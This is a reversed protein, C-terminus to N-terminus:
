GRVQIERAHYMVILVLLVATSASIMGKLVHSYTSEQPVHLCCSLRIPLNLFIYLLSPTVKSYFGRSLETEIVMVLIGFMGCVLAYDSLLKRKGFLAKRQGLRYGIDKTKKQKASGEEGTADESNAKNSDDRIVKSFADELIASHLLRLPHQGSGADSLTSRSLTRVADGNAGSELIDSAAPTNKLLSLESGSFPHSNRQFILCPINLYPSTSVDLFM